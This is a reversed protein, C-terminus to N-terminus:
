RSKEAKLSSIIDEFKIKDKAIFERAEQIIRDNLGLKPYKLLM